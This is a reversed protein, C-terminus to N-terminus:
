EISDFALTYFYAILADIEEDTLVPGWYPMHTGMGGRVIKGQLLVPQAGLLVRPDSFDPPRTAAHKMSDPDLAPLDRVMVGDGRGTEGHCASCNIAYLEEGVALADPSSNAQWIYAVADWLENDKLDVLSPDAGLQAWLEAPSHMLYVDRDLIDAPLRTNLAAGSQPDPPSEPVAAAVHPADIDIGLEVFLPPSSLEPDAQYDGVEIVGRMRWHNPGCWRTCYFTYHGPEDFILTMESWEGPQIDVHEFDLKGVAFNHMVDDSTIRLHIPQGVEARIIDPSWGGNEPMRAYMEIVNNKGLAIQRGVLPIAVGIAAFLLVVLRATTEQKM